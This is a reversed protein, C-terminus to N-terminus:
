ADPPGPCWGTAHAWADALALTRWIFPAKAATYQACGLGYREALEVKLAAYRAAEDANSPLFDRFLSAAQESFRGAVRVHIHTRRAGPAERFYRQTRDPNDPRFGYGLSELPLRYADLPELDGVSVQVDRVPKAALIPVATSGVHDIRRSMAGLAARIEAVATQRAFIWTPSHAVVRVPEPDAM